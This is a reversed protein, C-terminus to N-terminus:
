DVKINNEGHETHIFKKNVGRLKFLNLLMFFALLPAKQFAKKMRSDVLYDPIAMALALILFFLIIWWKLSLEWDIFTFIITLLGTLGVLLIRPLMMWQLLKDCYNFNGSLIAKPISPLAEFLSSYQAALWRRRQNSFNKEKATKEDYVYVDELYEIYLGQKLLLLELEKDEGASSVQKINEKFWNYDFAMGSGILASSLGLKVHGKRFISNNIEESIADLIATDTNRNKAIRHAQIALPGYEYADSLKNLFSNQVTNDADLIVVLDYSESLEDIAFNLAKAKSSNEFNVNLVKIPLSQLNELTVKKLQDAIVIVDYQEKPYDIQLFSRVSEEIILDEKYAPFLIAFRYKKKAPPYTFSRKFMGAFSFVLLYGISGGILIFLLTDLIHIFEFM